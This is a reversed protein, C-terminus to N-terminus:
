RRALGAGFLFWAVVGIAIVSVVTLLARGVPLEVRITGPDAEAPGVGPPSSAVGQLDRNASARGSGGLSITFTARVNTVGATGGRMAADYKQRLDPPMEDPSGYKRTTVVTRAQVMPRVGSPDKAEPGESVLPKIQQMMLEYPGRDDAPMEDISAYERGNFQIREGM